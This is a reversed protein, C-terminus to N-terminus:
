EAGPLCASQNQSTAASPGACLRTELDLLTQTLHLQSLGHAIVCTDGNLRVIRDVLLDPEFGGTLDNKLTELRHIAVEINIQVTELLHQHHEEITQM